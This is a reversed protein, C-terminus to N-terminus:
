RGLEDDDPPMSRDHPPMSRDEGAHADVAGRTLRGVVVGATAAGLLFMGPRRRALGRVGDVLQGPERDALYDALQQAYDAGKHALQSGSGPQDAKEAMARLEESMSRLGDVARDRQSVAQDALQTRTERTLRQAQDRIDSVVQAGQEKATGTADWAADAATDKVRTAEHQAAERLGSTGASQDTTSPRPEITTPDGPDAPPQGTRYPDNPVATM